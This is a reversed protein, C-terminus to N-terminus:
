NAVCCPSCDNSQGISSYGGPCSGTQSCYNGGMAGCSPPSKCCRKCDSSQGLNSYGGPCGNNQSCYDGGMAGCTPACEGCYISTGCNDTRWGCSGAPCGTSTCPKTKCCPNCDNSAGLSNYGGPCSGTQSCYDGGMEGCSPACEGCFIQEGCNDTQMGCTGAPCGTSQCSVSECCTACDFSQGLSAYGNPCTGDQSCYDGGKEGCSPLSRCCSPCDFSAGLSAYGGPCAGTQSCYDGGMEGCSPGCEGCFIQQGCNDTVTGCSGAPCGNSECTSTSQICCAACDNSSGLSEFNEPCLGSQSCYEGGMAGCSSMPEDLCYAEVCPNGAGCDHNLISYKECPQGYEAECAVAEDADFLGYSNCTIQPLPEICCTTNPECEEQVDWSGCALQSAHAGVVDPCCWRAVPFCGLIIQACTYGPLDLGDPWGVCVQTVICIVVGGCVHCAEPDPGQGPITTPVSGGPPTGTYKAGEKIAAHDCATPCKLALPVFQDRWTQPPPPPPTNAMATTGPTCVDPHCNTHFGFTHGVEHGAVIAMHAMSPEYDPHIRIIASRLHNLDHDRHTNAPGSPDQPDVRSIQLTNTGSIAFPSSFIDFTVGSGGANQWCKVASAIAPAYYGFAPDINVRVRANEPWAEFDLVGPLGVCQGQGFANVPICFAMLFGAFILAVKSATLAAVSRRSRGLVRVWRASVLRKAM